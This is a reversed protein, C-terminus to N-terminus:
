RRYRPSPTLGTASRHKEPALLAHGKDLISLGSYRSIELNLFGSAVLKGSEAVAM